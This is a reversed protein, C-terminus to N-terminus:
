NDLEQAATIDVGDVPNRSEAPESAIPSKRVCEGSHQEDDGIALGVYRSKEPGATVVRLVSLHFLCNNRVTGVLM